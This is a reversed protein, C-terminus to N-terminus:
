LYRRAKSAAMTPRASESNELNNQARDRLEKQITTFSKGTLSKLEEIAEREVYYFAIVEKALSKKQKDTRNKFYEVVAVILAISAIIISLLNYLEQMVM